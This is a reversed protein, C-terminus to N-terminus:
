IRTCGTSPCRHNRPGHPMSLTAEGSGNQLRAFRVQDDAADRHCVQAVGRRQHVGSGDASGRDPVHAADQEAPLPFRWRQLWVVLCGVRRRRHGAGASQRGPRRPLRANALLRWRLARSRGLDRVLSHRRAGRPASGSASSASRRSDYVPGPENGEMELCRQGRRGLSVVAPAEQVSGPVLETKGFYRFGGEVPCRLQYRGPALGRIRYAGQADSFVTTIVAPRFLDIEPQPHHRHLLASAPVIEKPSGEPQWWLRCGAGGDIEYYEVSFSHDGATLDVEASQERNWQGNNNLVEKSDLFLRVWDDALVSLVYRGSKPVRLFGTWRVYFNDSLETGPFSGAVSPFDITSDVRRHVIPDQADAKPFGALSKDAQYYEGTLGPQLPDESRRPEDTGHKARRDTAPASGGDGSNLEVSVAQVAVAEIPSDDLAVRLTEYGPSRPISVCDSTGPLDPNPRIPM